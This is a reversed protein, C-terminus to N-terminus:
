DGGSNIVSYTCDCYNNQNDLRFNFVYSYSSSLRGSKQTSFVEKYLVNLRDPNLKVGISQNDSKQISSVGQTAQDIYGWGLM